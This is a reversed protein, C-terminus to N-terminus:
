GDRWMQDTRCFKDRRMLIVCIQAKPLGRLRNKKSKICAKRFLAPIRRQRPCPMSTDDGSTVAYYLSVPRPSRPLARSPGSKEAMQQKKHSLQTRKASDGTKDKTEEQFIM